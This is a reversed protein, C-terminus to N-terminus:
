WGAKRGSEPAPPRRTGYGPTWGAYSSRSDTPGTASQLVPTFCLSHRVGTATSTATNTGTANTAGWGALAASGCGLATDTGPTEAGLDAAGTVPLRVAGLHLHRPAGIVVHPRERQM